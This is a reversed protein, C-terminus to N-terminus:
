EDSNATSSLALSQLSQEDGRQELGFIQFSQSPLPVKKFPELM